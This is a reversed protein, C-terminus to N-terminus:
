GAHQRRNDEIDLLEAVKEKFRTLQRESYPPTPASDLYHTIRDRLEERDDGNTCMSLYATVSPCLTAEWDKRFSDFLKDAHPTMPVEKTDDIPIVDVELVWPLVAIAMLTDEVVKFTLLEREARPEDMHGGANKTTIVVQYRFMTM